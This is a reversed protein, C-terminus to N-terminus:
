CGLRRSGPGLGGRTAKATTQELSSLCSNISKISANARDDDAEVVIELQQRSADWRNLAGLLPWVCQFPDVAPRFGIRM